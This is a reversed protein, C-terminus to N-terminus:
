ILNTFYQYDEKILGLIEIIKIKNNEFRNKNKVYFEKIEEKMGYLRLVEKFYLELREIDDIKTDYEYNIIDEYFDFDYKEKMTKIHNESAIIL